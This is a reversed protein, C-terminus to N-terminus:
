PLSTFRDSRLAVWLFGAFVTIDVAMVHTELGHFRQTLPSWALHTAIVGVVLIVGVQREDRSGRTFAYLAVLALLIRFFNPAM